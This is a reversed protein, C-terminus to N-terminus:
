PEGNPDEKQAEALGLAMSRLLELAADAPVDMTMATQLASPVDIRLVGDRGSM